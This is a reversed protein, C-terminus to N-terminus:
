NAKKAAKRKLHADRKSEASNRLMLMFKNGSFPLMLFYMNMMLWHSWYGFTSSEVGLLSLASQVYEAPSPVFTSTKKIGPMKTAVFGPMVSQVIIGIVIVGEDVTTFFCRCFNHHHQVFCMM